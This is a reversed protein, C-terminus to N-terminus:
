GVIIYDLTSIDAINISGAAVIAEITFSGPAGNVRASARTIYGTTLTTTNPTKMTVVIKSAATITAAVTVTGAVLVASGSQMIAPLKALQAMQTTDAATATAIAADQSGDLASRMIQELTAENAARNVHANMAVVAAAAVVANSSAVLEAGATTLDATNLVADDVLTGPLHKVGDSTTVTNILYFTAM